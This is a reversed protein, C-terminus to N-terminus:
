GGTAGANGLASLVARKVDDSSPSDSYYTDPTPDVIGNECGSCASNVIVPLQPKLEHIRTLIQPGDSRGSEMGLVVATPPDRQIRALAGAPGAAEIVVYGERRLAEEYLLQENGDDEVLLITPMNSQEDDADDFDTFRNAAFLGAIEFAAILTCFVAWNRFTERRSDSAQHEFM